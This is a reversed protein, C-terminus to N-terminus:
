HAGELGEATVADQERAFAADEAAEARRLSFEEGAMISRAHENVFAERMEDTAQEGAGDPGSSVSCDAAMRTSGEDEATLVIRCPVVRWHTGYQSEVRVGDATRGITRVMGTGSTGADYTSTKGLLQQQVEAVPLDVVMPDHNMMSYGMYGGVAVVGALFVMGGNM